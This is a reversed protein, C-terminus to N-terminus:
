QLTAVSATQPVQAAVGVSPCGQGSLPQPEPSVQAPSLVQRVGIM